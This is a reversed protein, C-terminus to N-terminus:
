LRSTVRRYTPTWGYNDLADVETGRNVLRVGREYDGKDAAVMLPTWGQADRADIDEGAFWVLWVVAIILLPWTM